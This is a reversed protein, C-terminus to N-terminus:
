GHPLGPAHLYFKPPDLVRRLRLSKNKMVSLIAGFTIAISHEQLPLYVFM